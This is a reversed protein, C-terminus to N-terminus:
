TNKQPQPGQVLVFYFHTIFNDCFCLAFYLVFYLVKDYFISERIWKDCLTALDELM